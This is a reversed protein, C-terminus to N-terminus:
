DVDKEFKYNLYIQSQQGNSRGMRGTVGWFCVFSPIDCAFLLLSIFCSTELQFAFLTMFRDLFFM